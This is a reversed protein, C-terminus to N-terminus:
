HQFRQLGERQDKSLIASKLFSFNIITIITIIPIYLQNYYISIFLRRNHTILMIGDIICFLFVQVSRPFVRSSPRSVHCVSTIVIQSYELMGQM